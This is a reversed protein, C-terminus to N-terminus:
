QSPQNGPPPEMQFNLMWTMGFKDAFQAYIAGWFQKSPAMIVKGGGSLKEFASNLEQESDCNLSLAVSNGDTIEDERTLADSAMLVVGGKTLNSHMVMKQMEPPFQSAMQSEGVTTITLDGGLGDRYFTM